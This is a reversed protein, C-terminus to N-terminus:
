KVSAPSVFVPLIELTGAVLPSLKDSEQREREAETVIVEKTADGREDDIVGERM